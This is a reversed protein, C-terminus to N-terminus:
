TFYKINFIEWKERSRMNKEFDCCCCLMGWWKGRNKKARKKRTNAIAAEWNTGSLM